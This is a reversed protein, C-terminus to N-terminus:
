MDSQGRRGFQDDHQNKTGEDVFISNEVVMLTTSSCSARQDLPLLLSKPEYENQRDVLVPRPLVVIPGFYSPLATLFESYAQDTTKPQSM